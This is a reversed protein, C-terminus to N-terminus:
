LENGVAQKAIRDVFENFRVGTHAPVKRFEIRIRASQSQMFQKYAITGAKNTKWRGQAWMEIGMYDYFITISQAGARVAEQVARIAGHIEGAVNRMSALDPDSGSGQFSQYTGDRHMLLVGYGFVHTAINFSGDVYALCETDVSDFEATVDLASIGQDDSQGPNKIESHSGSMPVDKRAVSIKQRSESGGKISHKQSPMARGPGAFREAEERTKFKKYVAGSYGDVEAKCAEWSLYIGPTRGKQVAYYFM